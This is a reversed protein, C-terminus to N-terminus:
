GYGICAAADYDASDGHRHSAGMPCREECVGCGICSEADSDVRYSSKALAEMRNGLDMELSLGILQQM